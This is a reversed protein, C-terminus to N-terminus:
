CVLEPLAWKKRALLTAFSAQIPQGNSDKRHFTGPQEQYNLVQWHAYYNQLEQPAFTSPFDIPCPSAPSSVPAIIFHHGGDKTHTQMDTIVASLSEPRLFQFVVTSIILDYREKPNTRDYLAASEIDYCHAHFREAAKEVQIIAQLAEISRVNKDLATVRHNLAYLYTANRGKGCGLDLINLDSYDALPGAMLQKVDRHPAAVQHKKQFYDQPQCYFEVFCQVEALPKVRHWAGPAIFFNRHNPTLITTSLVAGTEDLSDYQLQGAEITIKGWTGAKTNHQTQFTKPLTTESWTPLTKYKVLSDTNLDTYEISM